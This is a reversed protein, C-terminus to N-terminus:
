YRYDALLIDQFQPISWSSFSITPGVVVYDQSPALRIGNLSLHLSTSPLPVHTLSFNQNTGNPFGGPVENDIFNLASGSGSTTSCPGSTGDVLLCDGPAGAAAEIQGAANIIAARGPAFGIGSTPRLALENSLGFVDKIQIITSAAARAVGLPHSLVLTLIVILTTAVPTLPISLYSAFGRKKSM